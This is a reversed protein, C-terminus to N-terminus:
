VHARGIESPLFRNVFDSFAIPTEINILLTDDTLGLAVWVNWAICFGSRRLTGRKFSPIEPLGYTKLYTLSDRNAYADYPISNICVTEARKFLQVYPILTETGNEKFRAHSQGALIVNRPNWSFKYGWRDTSTKPSPLGGCYSYFAEITANQAKLRAIMDMASAHDLGPDLGCENLFFLQKQEIESQLKLVEPSLYSATAMHINNELAKQAVKVHWSPPLLSIVFYIGNFLRDWEASSNLDLEIWSTRPHNKFVDWVPAFFRDAITIKWSETDAQQILYEILHFSSRGSGLILVHKM